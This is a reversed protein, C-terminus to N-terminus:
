CGTPTRSCSPRARARVLPDEGVGRSSASSSTATWSTSCTPGSKWYELTDGAHLHRSVERCDPLRARREARAAPGTSSADALMGSRDETVGLRETRVMVRRLPREVAASARWCRGSRTAELDLLARASGRLEVAFQPGSTTGMLFRATRLFDAYHDEDDEDSLTYMKYPRRPCSCSAARGRRVPPRGARRGRQRRRAPRQLAPVRRPHGPGARAGSAARPWSPGCGVSSRPASTGTARRSASSSPLDVFRERLTPTAPGVAGTRM